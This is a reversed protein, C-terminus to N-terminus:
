LQSLDEDENSQKEYQQGCTPLEPYLRKFEAKMAKDFEEMFPCRFNGDKDEWAPVWIQMKRGSNEKENYMIDNLFGEIEEKTINKYKDEM